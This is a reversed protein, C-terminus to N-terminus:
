FNNTFTTFKHTPLQLHGTKKLCLTYIVNYTCCSGVDIYQLICIYKGAKRGFRETWMLTLDGDAFLFFMASLALVLMVLCVIILLMRVCHCCASDCVFM